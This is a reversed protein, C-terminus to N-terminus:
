GRQAKTKGGHLALTVQGDLTKTSHSTSFRKPLPLSSFPTTAVKATRICEGHWTLARAHGGSDEGSEAGRPPGGGVGVGPRLGGLGGVGWGVGEGPRSM